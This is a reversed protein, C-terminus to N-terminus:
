AARAGDWLSGGRWRLSLGCFPFRWLPAAPAAVFRVGDAAAEEQDRRWALVSASAVAGHRLSDGPTRAPTGGGRCRRRVGPFRSKLPSQRCRRDAGPRAAAWTNGPRTRTPRLCHV